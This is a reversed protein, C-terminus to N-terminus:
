DGSDLTRLMIDATGQALLTVLSLRNLRCIQYREARAKVREDAIIGRAYHPSSRNWMVLRSSMLHAPASSRRFDAEGGIAVTLSRAAVHRLPGFAVADCIRRVRRCSQNGVRRRSTPLPSCRSGLWAQQWPRPPQFSCFCAGAEIRWILLGVAVLIGLLGM